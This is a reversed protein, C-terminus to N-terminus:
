DVRLAEQPQIRVARWAPVAAGLVAVVLLLVAVLGFVGADRAPTEYLLEDLRPAAVAASVLGLTLGMAVLRLSGAVVGGVIRQRTAGLAARIGIERTRQAVGFALLGYLGVAAVILALGGFLTFLLAGMRWSRYQPDVFERYPRAEVYRVRADLAMLERRLVPLLDAPDGRTRAVLTEPADTVPRQALTVYYQMSAGEIVNMHRTDRVVGVVEYCPGDPDRIRMCRGLADSGGWAARAMTENV